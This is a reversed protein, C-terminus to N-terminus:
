GTVRVVKTGRIGSRTVAVTVSRTRAPIRARLVLRATGARRLRVSARAVVRSGVRLIARVTCAATCRTSVRLGRTRLASRGIARPAAVALKPTAPAAQGASGPGGSGAVAAVPPAAGSFVPQRGTASLTVTPGMGCPPLSQTSGAISTIAAVKAGQDDSWAVMTGDPSFNPQSPNPGTALRCGSTFGAGPRRPVALGYVFLEEVGGASTVDGVLRTGDRSVDASWIQGGAAAQLVQQDTPPATMVYEFIGSGLLSSVLVRDSAEGASASSPVFSGNWGDLLVAGVSSVRATSTVVTFPDTRFNYAVGRQCGYDFLALSGDASMRSSRPGIIGLDCSEVPTIGSTIVSGDPNLYTMSSSNGAKLFALIRGSDAQSAAVWPIAGSGNATVQKKTSGDPSATWVNGSDTYVVSVSAAGPALILGTCIAVATLTSRVDM